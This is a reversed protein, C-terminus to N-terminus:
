EVPVGFLVTDIETMTSCQMYWRYSVGLSEVFGPLTVLDDPKHYAALALRPRCSRITEAAGKLVGLDAGEVDVKLFDVRPLDGRQVMADITDTRLERVDSEVEEASARVTAGAALGDRIFVTEGAGAALPSEWVRVRSAIPPNLEINKDLLKRNAPTPEFSHVRGDPGVVHALWLATEGWCGGVDLAVDGPLPRALVAQDRYAYQSFLFTSALPLPQGIAQLPYGVPNLDYLSMQWELPMGRTGLVNAQVQGQIVLAVISNRYAIPDLELRVHVPGLARYALYRLLLARSNDDGLGRWLAGSRELVSLERAIREGAEAPDPVPHGGPHFFTDLNDALRQQQADAVVQLFRSRADSMSSAGPAEGLQALNEGASPHEPDIHRLALLLERAAARDGDGALMVALDNLADLDLSDRITGRLMAIAEATKGSAFLDVAEAHLPFPM